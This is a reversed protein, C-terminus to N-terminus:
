SSNRWTCWDWSLIHHLHLGMVYIQHPMQLHMQVGVEWNEWSTWTPKCLGLFTFTIKTFYNTLHHFYCVLFLDSSHLTEAHYLFIDFIYLGWKRISVLTHNIWVSIVRYKYWTWISKKLGYNIDSIFTITNLDQSCTLFIRNSIIYHGIFYMAVVCYNQITVIQTVHM